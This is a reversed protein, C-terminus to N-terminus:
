RIAEELPTIPTVSFPYEPIALGLKPIAQLRRWARSVREEECRVYAADLLRKDFAGEHVVPAFRADAIYQALAPNCAIHREAQLHLRELPVEGLVYRLYLDSDLVNEVDAGCVECPYGRDCDAM